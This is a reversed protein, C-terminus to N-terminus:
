TLLVIGVSLAACALFSGVLWSVASPWHSFPSLLRKQLSAVRTMCNRVWNKGIMALLHMVAYGFYTRRLAVALIIAIALGRLTPRVTVLEERTTIKCVKSIPGTCGLIFIIEAMSRLGLEEILKFKHFLSLSIQPFVPDNLQYVLYATQGEIFGRCLSILHGNSLSIRTEFGNGRREIMGELMSINNSIAQIPRNRAALSIIEPEVAISKSQFRFDFILGLSDAIKQSRRINRRTHNGLRSLLGEPNRDLLLLDTHERPLRGFWQGNHTRRDVWFVSSQSSRVISFRAVYADTEQMFQAIETTLDIGSARVILAGDIVKTIFGWLRLRFWGGTLQFNNASNFESVNTGGSIDAAVKLRSLAARGAASDRLSNKAINTEVPEVNEIM